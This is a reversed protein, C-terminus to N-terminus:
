PSREPWRYEAYGDRQELIGIDALFKLTEILTLGTPTGGWFLGKAGGWPTEKSIVGLSKGLFYGAVDVDEWDALREKLPLLVEDPVDGM